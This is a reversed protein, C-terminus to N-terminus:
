RLVVGATGIVSASFGGVHDGVQNVQRVLDTAAMASIGFCMRRGLWELGARAGLAPMFSVAPTVVADFGGLAVATVALQKHLPLSIGVGLLGMTGSAMDVNLVFLLDNQHAALEFSPGAAPLRGSSARMSYGASFVRAFGTSAPRDEITAPHGSSVAISQGGQVGMSAAGAHGGAGNVALPGASSAGGPAATVPAAAVEVSPASKEPVVHCERCKQPGRAVEHHCGICRDHAVKPTFELKRVPGPGHCSACHIKRALHARHDITVTGFSRTQRVVKDPAPALAGLASDQLDRAAGSDAAAMATDEIPGAPLQAAMTLLSTERAPSEAGSAALSLSALALLYVALV